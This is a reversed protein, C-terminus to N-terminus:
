RKFCYRFIFASLWLKLNISINLSQNLKPIQTRRQYGIRVLALMKGLFDEKETYHCMIRGHFYIKLRNKIVILALNAVKFYVELLLPKHPM